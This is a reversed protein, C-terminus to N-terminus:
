GPCIMQSQYIIFTRCVRAGLFSSKEPSGAVSNAAKKQGFINFQEKESSKPASSSSIASLGIAFPTVQPPM